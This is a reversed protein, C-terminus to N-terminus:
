EDLQPLDNYGMKYQTTDTGAAMSFLASGICIFIIIIYIYIYIYIYPILFKFNNVNVNYVLLGNNKCHSKLSSTRQYLQRLGGFPQFSLSSLFSRWSM